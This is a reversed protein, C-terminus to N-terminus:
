SGEAETGSHDTTVVELFSGKPPRLIRVRDPLVNLTVTAAKGELGEVTVEIKGQLGAYERTFQAHGTSPLSLAPTKLGLVKLHLHPPDETERVSLEYQFNAFVKITELRLTTGIRQTSDDLLPSVILRFEPDISTAM